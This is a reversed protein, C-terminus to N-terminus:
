LFCYEMVEREGKKKGEAGNEREATGILLIDGLISGVGCFILQALLIAKV